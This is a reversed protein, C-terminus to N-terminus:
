HQLIALLGTGNSTHDNGTGLLRTMEQELNAAIMTIKSM